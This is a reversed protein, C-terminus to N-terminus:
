GHFWVKYFHHLDYISSAVPLMKTLWFWTNRKKSPQLSESTKALATIMGKASQKNSMEESTCDKWLLSLVRQHHELSERTHFSVTLQLNEPNWMQLVSIQERLVFETLMNVDSTGILKLKSACQERLLSNEPFHKM